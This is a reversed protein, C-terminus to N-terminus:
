EKHVTDPRLATLGLFLVVGPTPDKLYYALLGAAVMIFATRLKPMNEVVDKKMQEENTM